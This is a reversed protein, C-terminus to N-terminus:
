FIGLRQAIAFIFVLIGVNVGLLIFFQTWTMPKAEELSKAVQKKVFEESEKKTWLPQLKDTVKEFRLAQYAGNVFLILSKRRRFRGKKREKFVCIPEFQVEKKKTPKLKNVEFKVKKDDFTNDLYLEIVRTKAM